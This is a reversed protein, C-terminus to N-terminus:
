GEEHCIKVPTAVQTIFTVQCQVSQLNRRWSTILTCKRYRGEVLVIHSPVGHVIATRITNHMILAIASIM